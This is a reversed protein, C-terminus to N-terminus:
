NRMCRVSFMALKLMGDNSVGVRWEENWMQRACARVTSIYTSTWWLGRTGLSEFSGGETADNHWIGYGGPLASFGYIDTGPKYDGEESWYNTTKLRTAASDGIFMELVLWEEDSPLHWGPPCVTLATEWDYLRGYIACNAALNDYCASGKVNYNLNEAMWTQNGIKVMRYTQGQYDLGAQREIAELEASCSLFIVFILASLFQKHKLM